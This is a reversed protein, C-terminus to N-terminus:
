TIGLATPDNYDLLLEHSGVKVDGERTAWTAAEGMSIM